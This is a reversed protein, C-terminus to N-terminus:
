KRSFRRRAQFAFVLAGVALLVISSPEPVARFSAVYLEYEGVPDHPVEAFVEIVYDKTEPVFFDLLLADSSEREKGNTYDGYYLAFFDDPDEEDPDYIAVAVNLEDLRSSIVDSLVEIQVFDGEHAFFSYYDSTLVAGPAEIEGSVAMVDAFLGMGHIPDGPDTVNPVGITKLPLPTATAISSGAPGGPLSSELFFGPDANYALKIASRQGVGLDATLQSLTFGDPISTTLSQVDTFTDVAGAPGPYIPIYDGVVAAPM